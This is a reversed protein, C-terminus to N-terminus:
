AERINTTTTLTLRHRNKDVKSLTTKDIDLDIPVDLISLIKIRGASIQGTIKGGEIIFEYYPMGKKLIEVLYDKLDLKQGDNNAFIDIIVLPNRSTATSGVEIFKHNTIGVQVCVVPTSDTYKTSVKSFAKIVKVNDWDTEINIEIYKLISAEFNRSMRYM